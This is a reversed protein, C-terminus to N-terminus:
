PEEELALPLTRSLASPVETRHNDGEFVVFGANVGSTKLRDAMERANDIMRNRAQSERTHALTQELTAGGFAAPKMAYMKTILAADAAGLEQELGGVTILVTPRASGSRFHTTFAKEEAKLATDDWWIAPSAAVFTAFADPEAFLAHLVFYGGLSHGFLSQRRTNIAYTKGVADRLDHRLFDLFAAAGGFKYGASAPQPTLPPGLTFDHDRRPDDYLTHVPYGVGVVIAPGGELEYLRAIEAALGFWANADLVYLVPFGGAPPPGEPASIFITYDLGEKSRIIRTTLNRERIDPLKMAETPASLPKAAADAANLAAPSAILAFTLSALWVVNRQAPILTM